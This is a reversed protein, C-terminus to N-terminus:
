EAAFSGVVPLGASPRPSPRSNRYMRAQMEVGMAPQTPRPRYTEGYMLSCLAADADYRATHMEGLVRRVHADANIGPFDDATDGEDLRLALRLVAQHAADLRAFAAIAKDALTPPAIDDHATLICM